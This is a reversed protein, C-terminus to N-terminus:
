NPARERTEIGGSAAQHGSTRKRKPGPAQSTHRPIKPSREGILKTNRNELRYQLASHSKLRLLRAARTVSGDGDHLAQRILRDEYAKVETKFDFNEWPDLLTAEHTQRGALTRVPKATIRTGAPAAAITREIIRRLDWANSDLRLEHTADLADETFLVHKGEAELADEVFRRALAPTDEPREHLPPLHFVAPALADWLGNIIEGSERLKEVTHVSTAIVRVDSGGLINVLLHQCDDDLSEIDEFVITGGLADRLRSEIEPPNTKTCELLAIEGRRESWDHIAHALTTKGTGSEGTILVNEATAAARRANRVIAATLPSAHAFGQDAEYAVQRPTLDLLIKSATLLRDLTQASANKRLTNEALDFLARADRYSLDEHLQELITLATLASQQHAGSNEGVEIARRLILMAQERKAAKALIIGKSRLAGSLLAAEGGRELTEIASNIVHEADLLNGTDSLLLAITERVQAASGADHLNTFLTLARRLHKNAEEYRGLSYLLMGLNNEVRATYRSHGALEFHYTAATYEIIARDIYEPRAEATAIISLTIALGNHLKGLLADVGLDEVEPAIDTLIRLAEHFFKRARKLQSEFLAIRIKLEANETTLAARAEDLQIEAEDLAAERWYCVSLELHCESVKVQSGVIKYKALALTLLDKAAEQSGTTQTTSGLWGTLVGAQMTLEAGATPSLGDTKPEAGLGTWLDGLAESALEYNGADVFNKAHQCRLLARQTADLSADEIERRIVRSLTM